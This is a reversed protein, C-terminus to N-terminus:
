RKLNLAIKIILSEVEKKLDRIKDDREKQSKIVSSHKLLLAAYKSPLDKGNKVNHRLEDLESRVVGLEMKTRKLEEALTKNMHREWLLKETTTEPRLSMLKEREM